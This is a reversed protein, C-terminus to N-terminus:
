ELDLALQRRLVLMGLRNRIWASLWLVIGCVMFSTSATEPGILAVQVSFTADIVKVPMEVVHGLVLRLM